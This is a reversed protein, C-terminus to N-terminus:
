KEIRELDIEWWWEGDRVVRVATVRVHLRAQERRMTIAPEHIRVGICDKSTVTLWPEAIWYPRGPKVPFARYVPNSLKYRFDVGNSLMSDFAGILGAGNHDFREPQPEVRKRWTARNTTLLSERAFQNLFLRTM